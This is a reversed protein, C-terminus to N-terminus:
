SYRLGGDIVLTEGTTYGNEMLYVAAHAVEEPTGIKKILLTDTIAAFADELQDAPAMHAHIPTDIFGPSITNVRIPSLEAALQMGLADIAGCAAAVMSFGPFPKIGAVGSFFIISGGENINPAGYRASIYQGWFKSELTARAKGIPQDLLGGTEFSVAPTLLHDINGLRDFLNEVQNEQTFDVVWTNVPSDLNAKAQELNAESRGAIHVDAGKDVCLQACGLGIGSSGGIILIRKGKLAM